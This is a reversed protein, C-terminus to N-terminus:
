RMQPDAMLVVRDAAPDFGLVPNGYDGEPTMVVPKGLRRGVAALFRCLVGLGEQGQLERLDVDFDIEGASMPRFIVLM